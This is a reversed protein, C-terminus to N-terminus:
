DITFLRGFYDTTFETYEKNKIILFGLARPSEPEFYNLKVPIAKKSKDKGCEFPFIM